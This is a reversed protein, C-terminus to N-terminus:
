LGTAGAGAGEKSSTGLGLGILTPAMPLAIGIVVPVVVIFTITASPKSEGTVNVAALAVHLETVQMVPLRLGLVIVPVPEDWSVTDTLPAANAIPPCLVMVMVPVLPLMECDM